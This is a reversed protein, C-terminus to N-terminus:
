EVRRACDGRGSGALAKLLTSKGAGNPGVIATMSGAAFAGTLNELAIRRGYSRTHLGFTLGYGTAKIDAIYRVYSRVRGVLIVHDGGERTKEVQCGLSAVCISRRM